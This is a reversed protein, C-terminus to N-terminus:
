RAGLTPVGSTELLTAFAEGFVFNHEPLDLGGMNNDAHSFVIEAEGIPEAPAGPEPHLAIQTNTLAGASDLRTLSATYRLTQGPAADRDLHARAIKALLVKEKFGGALGVLLGASQACGELVLSAPMVPEAPHSSDAGFHQYLHDESLSVGKVAVLREGPVVELIRDIWM